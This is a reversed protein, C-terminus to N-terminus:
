LEGEPVKAMHLLAQADIVDNRPVAWGHTVYGGRLNERNIPKWDRPMSGGQRPADAVAREVLARFERVRVFHCRWTPVGVGVIAVIDLDSRGWGIQETGDPYVHHSEFPLRHTGDCKRDAKVDLRWRMGRTPYVEFDWKLYDDRFDRVAWRRTTRLYEYVRQEAERVCPDNLDDWFDAPASSM